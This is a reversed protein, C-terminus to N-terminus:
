LIMQSTRNIKECGREYHSRITSNPKVRIAERRQCRQKFRQNELVSIYRMIINSGPMCRGRIKQLCTCYLTKLCTTCNGHYGTIRHLYRFSTWWHNPAMQTININYVDCRKTYFTAYSQDKLKYISSLTAFLSNCAVKFIEKVQYIALWGLYKQDINQLRKRENMSRCEREFFM